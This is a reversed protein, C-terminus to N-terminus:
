ELPERLAVEPSSFNTRNLHKMTNPGGRGNMAVSQTHGHM